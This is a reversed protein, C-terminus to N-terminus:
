WCTVLQSDRTPQKVTSQQGATSQQGVTLLSAFALQHDTPLRDTIRGHDCKPIDSLTCIVFWLCARLAAESVSTEGNEWSFVWHTRLPLLYQTVKAKLQGEYKTNTFLGGDKYKTGLHVGFHMSALSTECSVYCYRGYKSSVRQDKYTCSYKQNWNKGM